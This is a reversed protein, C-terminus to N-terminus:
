PLNGIELMRQLRASQNPSPSFSLPKHLEVKGEADVHIQLKFQSNSPDVLFINDPLTTTNYPPPGVVSKLFAKISKKAKVSPDRPATRLVTTLHSDSHFVIGIKLPKGLVFVTIHHVVFTSSCRRFEKEVIYDAQLKEFTAVVRGSHDDDLVQTLRISTGNTDVYPVSNLAVGLPSTSHTAYIKPPPGSMHATSGDQKIVIALSEKAPTYPKADQTILWLILQGALAICMLDVFSLSFIELEERSKRRSM